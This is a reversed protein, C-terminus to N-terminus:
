IRLPVRWELRTGGGKQRNVSFTGGLSQARDQLNRLGRSPNIRGLRAGNDTVRLVLERGAIVSIETESANASRSSQAIRAPRAEAERAEDLEVYLAILAV